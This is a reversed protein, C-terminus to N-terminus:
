NKFLPTRTKLYKAKKNLNVKNIEQFEFPNIDLKELIRNFISDKISLFAALLHEVDVETHKLDIAISQALQLSEQNSQTFKNIDM